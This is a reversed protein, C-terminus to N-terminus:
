VVMLQSCASMVTIHPTGSVSQGKLEGSTSLPTGEAPRLPQQPFQMHLVDYNNLM